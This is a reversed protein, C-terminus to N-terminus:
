AEYHGCSAGCKGRNEEVCVCVCKYGEGRKCVEGKEVNAPSWETGIYDANRISRVHIRKYRQYKKNGWSALM